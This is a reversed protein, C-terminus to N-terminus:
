IQALPKDLRQQHTLWRNELAEGLAGFAISTLFIVLGPIASGIPSMFMSTRLENLMLGWEPTPTSVGLGLFSLGAGYMIMVGIISTVYALLPPLMNPLVHVLIIRWRSAGALRAVDVYAQGRVQVTASEALRTVPPILVIVLAVLSNVFGPGFASILALAILIPPFAYFIDMVRMVIGNVVRGAYGAVLGLAAGAVLAVATPLLGFALSYPTGYVLRALMDRGLQDTGLLHGPALPPALRHIADVGNPDGFLTGRLAFLICLMALWFLPLLISWSSAIRAATRQPERFYLLPRLVPAISSTM